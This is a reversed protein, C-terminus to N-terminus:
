PVRWRAYLMKQQRRQGGPLKRQRKRKKLLLLRRRIWVTHEAEWREDGVKQRIMWPMAAISNTFIRHAAAAAGLKEVGEPTISGGRCKLIDGFIQEISLGGNYTVSSKTEESVIM